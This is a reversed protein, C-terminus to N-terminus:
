RKAARGFSRVCRVLADVEPESLDPHAPMMPGLGLANGGGVIVKRLSDDSAYRQFSPSTLDRPPPNLSAATPGDGRGSQGHCAACRAAYLPPCAAAPSPAESGLAEPRAAESSLGRFLPRGSSCGPWPISACILSLGFLSSLWVKRHRRSPQSERKSRSRGIQIVAVALLMGLAHELGFFRLPALKMGASPEAFFARPLPSLVAYLLLGLVFQLGASGASAAHLREDTGDWGLKKSWRWSSRVATALLLAMVVWRLYSHVVLVLEHVTM